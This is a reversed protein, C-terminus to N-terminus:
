LIIKTKCIFKFKKQMPVDTETKTRNENRDKKQTDVNEIVFFKPFLFDVKWKVLKLIILNGRILKMKGRYTNIEEKKREYKFQELYM